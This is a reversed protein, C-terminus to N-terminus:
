DAQRTKHAAVADLFPLLGGLLSLDLHLLVRDCILVVLDEHVLLHLFLPILVDALVIDHEDIHVFWPHYGGSAFLFVSSYESRRRLVFLLIRMVGINVKISAHARVFEQVLAALDSEVQM